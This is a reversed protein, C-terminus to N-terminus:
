ETSFLEKWLHNSGCFGFIMRKSMFETFTRVSFSNHVSRRECWAEEWSYKAYSTPFFRFMKDIILIKEGLKQSPLKITFKIIFKTRMRESRADSRWELRISIWNETSCNTHFTKCTHFFLNVADSSSSCRAFVNWNKDISNKFRMLVNRCMFRDFFLLIWDNSRESFRNELRSHETSSNWSLTIIVNWM